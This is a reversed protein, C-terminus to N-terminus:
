LFRRAALVEADGRLEVSAYQLAEGYQRV